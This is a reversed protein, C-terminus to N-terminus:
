RKLLDASRRELRKAKAKFNDTQTGGFMQANAHLEALSAFLLAPALHHGALAQCEESSGAHLLMDHEMLWAEQEGGGLERWLAASARAHEPFHARGLEDVSHVRPKGCDHYRLYRWMLSLEPQRAALDPGAQESWWKPKRWGQPFRGELAAGLLTRYARWVAEGHGAMCLSKFQFCARM